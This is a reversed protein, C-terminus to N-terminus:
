REVWANEARIAAEDEPTLDPTIKFFKRLEEVPKDKITAAISACCLDLVSEIHLFDAAETLEFVEESTLEGLFSVYWAPILTELNNTPLPRPIVPLQEVLAHELLSLIRRLVVSTVKCLPVPDDEETIAEKIVHSAEAIARTVQFSEGDSSVLTILREMNFQSM